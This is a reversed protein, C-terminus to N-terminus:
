SRRFLNLIHNQKPESIQSFDPVSMDYMYAGLQHEHLFKIRYHQEVCQYGTPVFFLIDFGILNLYAVLISDELSMMAESTNIFIIKPNKKTFDFKQILRLLDKGLNLATAVITYETGNEYTGKILNMDLLQQLKDLLHDQMEERLIGYQYAKHNKIKNKQIRKNQLFQTAFPKIPNPAGHAIWPVRKVMITDQNMLRKISLWYQDKLGNKVGSIKELMVPMTVVDNMVGFSPRYKMEQNWLISIEEYMTRLTVTEAKAYQKDRYMGSDQYMITDLEREAQYAATNVRMGTQEVPFEHMMLSQDCKLELLMPDKVCCPANLDPVFILVDVPLKALMRLFLAENESGCKGFLIFVGTEPMNWSVFLEKQYRSLWCLLYVGKNMLKQVNMGPRNSEELMADVFSKVMLRQLQMNGSYKINQSLGLIMQDVNSYNGSNIKTIEAPDPAPIAGNVVTIKRNKGKLQKYFMFLDNPFTLKDDVGYQVIFSNYFLNGDSGRRRAEIHVQEMDAKEMWANTCNSITPLQGYLRQRNAQKAIEQQLWKLNFDPAFPRMGPTTYLFSYESSPDNKLYDGDGNRELLVIDAGARFLVVLFQLEYNSINGDYLIKPPEQNGLLHAIREFKYYFWCMYKIYANKLMNENKGKQKMDTLNSYMANVVNNRQSDSMRPLWRSLKDSLFTKDLRFDNGMMENFYNLNNADPNPIRGDIIVGSRRATEYYQKLFATVEESDNTIRYFFFGREARNSLPAFYENLQRLQAPRGM